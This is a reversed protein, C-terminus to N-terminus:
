GKKRCDPGIGLQRSLEDTLHRNCVYCRGISVGYQQRAADVGAAEIAELVTRRQARAVPLDPKGGVVRKLFTYGAWKGETPRDVRFFDLDNNGTLSPIAYHGEPVDPLAPGPQANAELPLKPLGMMWDIIASAAQRGLTGAAADVICAAGKGYPGGTEPVVRETALRAIFAQQKASLTGPAQAKAPGSVSTAGVTATAQATAGQCARAEAATAHQGGCHPHKFM